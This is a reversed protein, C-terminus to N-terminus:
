TAPPLAALRIAMITIDDSPPVGATFSKVDAYLGACAAAPSLARDAVISFYALVRALGYFNQGADQAETVGDTVMILMDDPQLQLRVAPYLFNEDVCLPPGGAGNLSRPPENARLLIPADHGASSFQM